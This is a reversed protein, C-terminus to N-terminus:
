KWSQLRKLVKEVYNQVGKCIYKAKNCKGSLEKKKGCISTQPLGADLMGIPAM